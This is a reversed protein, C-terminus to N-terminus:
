HHRPKHYPTLTDPSASGRWDDAYYSPDMWMRTKEEEHLRQEERISFVLWGLTVGGLVLFIIILAIFVDYLINCLLDLGTKQRQPLSQFAPNRFQNQTVDNGM